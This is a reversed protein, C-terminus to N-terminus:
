FIRSRAAEATIQYYALGRGRRYYHRHFAQGVSSASRLRNYDRQDSFPYMCTPGGHFSVAMHTGVQATAAAKGRAVARRSRPSSRLLRLAKGIGKGGLLALATELEKPLGGARLLALTVALGGRGSKLLALSTLLQLAFLPDFVQIPHDGNGGRRAAAAARRTQDVQVLHVARVWSSTVHTTAILTHQIGGWTRAM